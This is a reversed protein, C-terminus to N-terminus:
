YISYKSNLYNSIVTITALDHYQDYVIAEAISGNLNFGFFNPKAGMTIDKTSSINLPIGSNATTHPILNQYLPYSDGSGGGYSYAFVYATNTPSSYSGGSGYNTMDVYYGGSNGAVYYANFIMVSGFTNNLGWGFMGDTNGGGVRACYGVMYMTFPQNGSPFGSTIFRNLYGTGNFVIAPMNGFKVDSAAYTAANFGSSSLDFGNGSFDPLTPINGGNSYGVLGDAKYWATLGPLSDPSIIQQSLKTKMGGGSGKVKMSGGNTGKIKLTMDKGKQAKTVERFDLIM